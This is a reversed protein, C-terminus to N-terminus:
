ASGQSGARDRDAVIAPARGRHERRRDLRRDRGGPVVGEQEARRRRGGDAPQDAFRAPGPPIWIEAECLGGCYLPRFNKWRPPHHEAGAPAPRSSRQCRRSESPRRPVGQARGGPRRGRHRAMEGAARSRRDRPSGGAPELDDSSAQWPAPPRSAVRSSSGPASASTRPARGVPSVIMRRFRSLGIEALEGRDDRGDPRRRSRALDRRRDGPSRRRAQGYM